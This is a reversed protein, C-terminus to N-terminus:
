LGGPEEIWRIRWALVCSRTATEGELSSIWAEKMEQKPLWIRYRQAVQSAWASTQQKDSSVPGMLGPKGQVTQSSAAVAIHVPHHGPIHWSMQAAKGEFLGTFSWLCPPGVPLWCVGRVTLSGSGQLSGPSVGRSLFWRHGGTRAVKLDVHGLAGTICPKVPEVAEPWRTHVRGVPTGM